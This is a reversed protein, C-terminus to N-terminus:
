TMTTTMFIHTTHDTDPEQSILPMDRHTLTLTNAKDAKTKLWQTVAASNSKQSWGNGLESAFCLSFALYLRCEQSLRIRNVAVELVIVIQIM